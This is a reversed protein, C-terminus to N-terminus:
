RPVFFMITEAWGETYHRLYVSYNERLSMIYRPIQRFDAPSHYVAVAIKPHDDIIHQKMGNLAAMEAGELDLKIFSVPEKVVTDLADVRIKKSGGDSIRCASGDNSDFSLIAAKDFLGLMHYNVNHLDSLKNKAISINKESPEFFHISKHEPCRKSFELSTFGDFGGGDVFVEGAGLNLFPEFYQQDVRFTYKYIAALSGELRFKMIDDFVALSEADSFLGRVWEYQSVNERYDIRMDAISSLQPIRGNSADAFAFYDLYNLIGAAKIKEIATKPRSNTVTSVVLSNKSISELKVIPKGNHSRAETYQDVYGDIDIIAAIADAYSNIGFLYKKKNTVGSFENYFNEASDSKSM